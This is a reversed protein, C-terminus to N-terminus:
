IQELNLAKITLTILNLEKVSWSQEAAVAKGLVVMGGSHGGM